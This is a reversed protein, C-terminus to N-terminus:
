LAPRGIQRLTKFIINQSTGGASQSVSYSGVAWAPGRLECPFVYCFRAVSLIGLATSVRAAQQVLRRGARPVQGGPRGGGHAGRGCVASLVDQVGRSDARAHGRGSITCHLDSTRARSCSLLIRPCHDLWTDPELFLRQGFLM